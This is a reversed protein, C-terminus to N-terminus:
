VRAITIPRHLRVREIAKSLLTKATRVARRATLHPHKEKRKTPELGFKQLWRSVISRDVAIGRETLRDVVSRYSPPYRLYQWVACFIIETPLRHHKLPSKRPM